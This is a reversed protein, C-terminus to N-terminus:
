QGSGAVEISTSRDRSISGLQVGGAIVMDVKVCTSIGGVHSELQWGRSYSDGRCSRHLNIQGWTRGVNVISEGGGRKGRGSQQLNIQGERTWLRVGGAIVAVGKVRTLSRKYVVSISRLQVGGTVATVVEICTIRGRDVVSISRLQVGGAIVVVGKM